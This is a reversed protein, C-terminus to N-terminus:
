KMGWEAPDVEVFRFGCAPLRSEAERRLDEPKHIYQSGKWLPRDTNIGTLAGALLRRFEASHGRGGSKVPFVHIDVAVRGAAARELLMAHAYFRRVLEAVAITQPGRPKPKRNRQARELDALIDRDATYTYRGTKTELTKMEM